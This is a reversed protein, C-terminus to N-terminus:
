QKYATNIIEESKNLRPDSSSLTRIEDLKKHFGQYLKDKMEQSSKEDNFIQVIATVNKTLLKIQKEIKPDAKSKSKKLKKDTVKKKIVM